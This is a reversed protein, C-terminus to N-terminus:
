KRAGAPRDHFLRLLERSAAFPTTEGRGVEEQLVPLRSAVARDERFSEELALMLLENLWELSQRSRRRALFGNEEMTRRHDLVMQWVEAVGEGTRSSCTLVPPPWGDASAPFLHLAHAYEVRAREAKRKNDGDAKTIAMGDLMEIIGRKMGQLEDGAGALMLLLFFDTM